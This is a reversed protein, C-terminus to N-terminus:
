GVMESRCSSKCVCSLSQPCRRGVELDDEDALEGMNGSADVISDEVEEEPASGVAEDGNPQQAAGIKRAKAKGLSARRKQMIQAAATKGRNGIELVTEPPRFSNLQALLDSRSVGNVSSASTAAAALSSATKSTSSSAIASSPTFQVLKTFIPHIGDEERESGALGKSGSILEKTRRYSEQSAKGQSKEYMKQGKEAVGLLSMLTSSPELINSRFHDSDLDLRDRPVTGLVLNNAFDDTSTPAPILPRGLFLQLDFLHPLESNTVFSYAWGKRGARATRGVRHVFTRASTPFDYNIVNPLLPIDIGRAALDTVVMVSTKGARFRGLQSLRAVQDMAGYISSVAYGATVLMTSLYEVHHKTAAFVISQSGSLDSLGNHNSGNSRKGKNKNNFTNRTGGGAFKTDRKRKRFRSAADDNDGEEDSALEGYSPLEVALPTEIIDRLLLLLASEKEKPKISIFAMQLDSSIKSETDLRVLKPNQLGAKAFEVLSKPLTASFLLTQRTPSLKSIIETLSTEFGLEFLRDAEDFVLFEVSRLDASMEVLLHLLRGPTAILIDPNSAMLAYQEELSDGGVVLGWRLQETNGHSHRSSPGAENNDAGNSNSPAHSRSTAGRAIDKGVKLVQLALERTPVLVLARAGYRPSHVAGLKQILPVMYALTKGSGTRAM